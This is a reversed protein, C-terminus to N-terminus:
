PCSFTTVQTVTQPSTSTQLNCPAPNIATITVSSASFSNIYASCNSTAAGAFYGYDGGGLNVMTSGGPGADFAATVTANTISVGHQDAVHVKFYVQWKHGPGDYKVPAKTVTIAPRCVIPTPTPPPTPTRTPVGSAGPSYECQSSIDEPEPQDSQITRASVMRLPLGNPMFPDFLGVVPRFTYTTTVVVRNHGPDFTMSPSGSAFPNVPNGTGDDYGVEVSVDTRGILVVRARAQTIINCPDAAVSYAPYGGGGAQGTIQRPYRSGYRSGEQAASSVQSFIFMLRAMEMIGFVVFFLMLSVLAFEVLSQGVSKGQVIRKNLYPVKRLVRIMTWM